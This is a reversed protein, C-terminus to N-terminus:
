RTDICGAMIPKGKRRQNGPKAVVMQSVPEPQINRGQTQGVTTSSEYLVSSCSGGLLQLNEVAGVGTHSCHLKLVHEHDNQFLSFICLLFKFM